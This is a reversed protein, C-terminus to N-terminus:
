LIKIFLAVDGQYSLEILRNLIKYEVRSNSQILAISYLLKSKYTVRM